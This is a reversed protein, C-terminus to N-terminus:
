DRTVILYCTVVKDPKPMIVLGFKLKIYFHNEHQEKQVNVKIKTWYHIDMYTQSILNIGGSNDKSTVPLNQLENLNNKSIKELITRGYGNETFVDILLQIEEDIYYKTCIKYARSLVM